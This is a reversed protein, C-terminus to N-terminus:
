IDFRLCTDQNNVCDIKAINLGGKIDDEFKGQYKEAFENWIPELEKCHPCWSAYFMIFWTKSDKIKNEDESVVKKQFSENDLTIM